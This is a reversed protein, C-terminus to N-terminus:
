CPRSLDKFAKRKLDSRVNTQRLRLTTGDPFRGVVYSYLFTPRQQGDVVDWVGELTEALYVVPLPIRM